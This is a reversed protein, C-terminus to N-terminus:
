VERENSADLILQLDVVFLFFLFFFGVFVLFTLRCRFFTMSLLNEKSFIKIERILKMSERLSSSCTLVHIAGITISSVAELPLCTRITMYINDETNTYKSYIHEVLYLIMDYKELIM